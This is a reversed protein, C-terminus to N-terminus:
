YILPPPIVQLINESSQFKVSSRRVEIRREIATSFVGVFSKTERLAAIWCGAASSVIWRTESRRHLTCTMLSVAAVDQEEDRCRIRM